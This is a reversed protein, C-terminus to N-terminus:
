GAHLAGGARRLGLSTRSGTQLAQQGLLRGLHPQGWLHPGSGVAACPGVGAYGHPLQVAEGRTETYDTVHPTPVKPRGDGTLQDRQTKRSKTDLWRHWHLLRWDRRLRAPYTFWLAVAIAPLAWPQRTALTYAICTLATAPQWNRALLRAPTM